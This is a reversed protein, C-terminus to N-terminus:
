LSLFTISPRRLGRFLSALEAAKKTQREKEEETGSWACCGWGCKAKQWIYGIEALHLEEKFQENDFLKSIRQHLDRQDFALFMMLEKLYILEEFAMGIAHTAYRTRVDLVERLTGMDHIRHEEKDQRTASKVIDDLLPDLEVKKLTTSFRMTFMTSYQMENFQLFTDTSPMYGFCHICRDGVYREIADRDGKIQALYKGYLGPTMVESRSLLGEELLCQEALDMKMKERDTELPVNEEEIIRRILQNQEHRKERSEKRRKIEDRMAKEEFTYLKGHTEMHRKLSNSRVERLCVRCQVQKHRDGSRLKGKGDQSVAIQDEGM